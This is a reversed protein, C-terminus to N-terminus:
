TLLRWKVSPLLANSETLLAKLISNQAPTIFKVSMGLDGSVAAVLIEYVQLAQGNQPVITYCLPIILGQPGNPVPGKAVKGCIKANTTGKVTANVLSQGFQTATPSGSLTGSLLGVLGHKAPDRFTLSVHNKQLVTWGSPPSVSITAVTVSGSSGSKSGGGLPNGSLL